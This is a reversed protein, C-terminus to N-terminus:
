QTLPHPTTQLADGWLSFLSPPRFVAGGGGLSFIDTGSERKTDQPEKPHRGFSNELDFAEPRFFHVSFINNAFVRLPGSCQLLRCHAVKAVTPFGPDLHSLAKELLNWQSLQFTYHQSM